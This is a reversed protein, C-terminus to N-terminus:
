FIWKAAIVFGSCPCWILYGQYNAYFCFFVSLSIVVSQVPPLIKAIIPSPFLAHVNKRPAFSGAFKEVYLVRSMEGNAAAKSFIGSINTIKAFQTTNANKRTPEEWSYRSMKRVVRKRRLWCGAALLAFWNRWSKLVNAKSAILWGNATSTSYTSPLLALSFTRIKPWTSLTLGIRVFTAFPEHLVSLFLRLLCYIRM